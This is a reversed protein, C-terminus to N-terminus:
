EEGTKAELNIKVDGLDLSKGSAVSQDIKKQPKFTRTGRSFQVSFKAGPVAELKFTGDPATEITRTRFAHKHIEEATRETHYFVVRVGGVPEGNEDILRGKVTGGPLLKVLAPEKEDGKLRLTGYQKSVADYVVLLRAKGPELHYANCTDAPLQIPRHWDQPSVGAVWAGKVPRNASDLIKVPLANAPELVIDEQVSAVGPKIELVKAFNGQLPTIAGNLTFVAGGLGREKPFYKPYKPDPMPPKYYYRGNEGDAIKSTDPGGMLIVPGPITVVRFAGDDGTSTNYFNASSDFEPYDKAHPNNLLVTVMVFGKMSKGTAKDVVRGTVVM